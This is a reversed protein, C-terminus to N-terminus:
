SIYPKIALMLDCSDALLSDLRCHMVIIDLLMIKGVCCCDEDNSAHSRGNQRGFTLSIAKSQEFEGPFM